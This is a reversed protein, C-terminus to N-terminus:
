RYEKIIQETMKDIQVQKRRNSDLWDQHVQRWSKSIFHPDTKRMRESYEDESEPGDASLEKVRYQIRGATHLRNTDKGVAYCVIAVVSGILAGAITMNRLGDELESQRLANEAVPVDDQEARVADELEPMDALADRRLVRTELLENYDTRIEAPNNGCAQGPMRLADDVMGDEGVHGLASDPLYLDLFNTCGEGLEITMRDLDLDAQLATDEATNLAEEAEDAEARQEKLAGQDPLDYLGGVGAGVGAFVAISAALGVIARRFPHAPLKGVAAQVDFGPNKPDFHAVDLTENEQEVM